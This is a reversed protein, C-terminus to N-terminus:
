FVRSLKQTKKEFEFNELDYMARVVKVRVEVMSLCGTEGKERSSVVEQRGVRKMEWDVRERQKEEM